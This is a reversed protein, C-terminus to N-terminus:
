KKGTIVGALKRGMGLIEYRWEFAGVGIVVAAVGGVVWWTLNHQLQQTANPTASAVTTAPSGVVKRCRNTDPNREEGPDCPKLDTADDAVKRCRNTQPSREYGDQCAALATSATAVSKCRNTTPSRYQGEACATLENIAEEIARCRNTDPSRYKGEPCAALPAGANGLGSETPAPFVNPGNPQPSTSWQWLGDSAVAWSVGTKAAGSASSYSTITQDYRIIGEADELWVYGGDDTLSLVGGDDRLAVLLYGHPSMSPYHDLHFANGLASSGSDSRLRFDSLDVPQDTPNFLKIYDHCLLSIDNPACDLAHPYIEVIQVTPVTVPPQYLPTHRLKTSSTAASFDNAFVGSMGTSKRQYWKTTIDAPLPSLKSWTKGTPDILQVSVIAETPGFSLAPFAITNPVSGNESATAYGDALMWDMPLRVDVDSVASSFRLMWGDLLQPTNSQNHLEVFSASKTTSLSSIVLPANADPQLTPDTVPPAVAHAISSSFILFSFVAATILFTLFGKRVLAMIFM